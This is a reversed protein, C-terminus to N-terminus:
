MRMQSISIFYVSSVTAEWGLQKIVFVSNTGSLVLGINGVKERRCM